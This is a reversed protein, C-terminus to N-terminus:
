LTPITGAPIGQGARVWESPTWTRTMVEASAAGNRLHWGRRRDALKRDGGAALDITQGAVKSGHDAPYVVRTIWEVRPTDDEPLAIV